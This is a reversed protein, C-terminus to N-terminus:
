HFMWPKEHGREETVARSALTQPSASDRTRVVVPPETTSTQWRPRRERHANSIVKGSPSSSQGAARESRAFMESTRAAEEFAQTVARVAQESEGRLGHALSRAYSSFATQPFREAADELTAVAEEFRRDYALAWGLFVAAFPSEPDMELHRRYPQIADAFRGELIPVFGQVGQTLPTLPDVELARELLATAAANRGARAYRGTKGGVGVRAHDM